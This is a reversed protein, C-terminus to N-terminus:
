PAEDFTTNGEFVMHQVNTRVGPRLSVNRFEIWTYPRTQFRFERIEDLPLDFGYTLSSLINGNSGRISSATIVGSDTIAIVRIAVSHYGRNFNHVVPLFTDGDKEYPVGFAIAGDARSHTKEKDQSTHTALTDWEAATVGFRVLATTKDQSQNVTYVRLDSVRNGDKGIPSGTSTAQTGGPVDWKYSTDSPGTLRMVFEYDNYGEHHKLRSGMTKYPAEEMLTGDPHWWQRGESPHECVGLLEATVGNRLTVTFGSMGVSPKPPKASLNLLKSEQVLSRLRDSTPAALLIVNMNRAKGKLEVTQGQKLAAEIEPWPKPLLDEYEPPIRDPSDLSFLLVVIDGPKKHHIEDVFIEDYFKKNHNRGTSNLVVDKVRVLIEPFMNINAPSMIFINPKSGSEYIQAKPHTEKIEVAPYEHPTIRVYNEGSNAEFFHIVDDQMEKKIAHTVGNYTVLQAHVKQRSYIKRSLEWRDPMMKEALAKKIIDAEDERWADRSPLTDNRDLSGMYIYHAVKSFAEENFPRGIYKEIGAIGIPFPLEYGNWQKVPLTPLGNVGGAAVAKVMEPHLFSYRNCFKASASFGHMFVKENIKFGNTRLLEQAYKIMATLQLDIRKLKGETIELTDIDLAHTYAWWNTRPRPFTPVLLPVGLQRAMQAAYSGEALRFARVRHFEPDDSTTGSNNPEVLMYVPKDKDIRRPVFLYFPFNFGRAEQTEIQLIDDGALSVKQIAGVKEVGESESVLMTVNQSVKNNTEDSEDVKNDPDVIVSITNEGPELRLGPNYEAWTKGPMIPGAAQASLLRGGKDPDGAHFNVRFQPIPVSGKNRLVIMAEFLRDALKTVKFNENDVAIDVASNEISQKQARAMPLLTAGLILVTMLGLIGLKVNKPIPRNAMHRIREELAKKSEVVGILRLSLSTKLFATEAIDILTNSYDKAGSGLTVLVMEDVAQERIRRVVINALWVLPNYFYVIQLITQASNIWLDGRRIHCLEHTLVAKLKDQPLKEILAKRILIVPTFLGCVAPSSVSNSVRVEIPRRVGVHKRCLNLMESFSSEAPESDAILRRVYLMRQILLASFVAVGALWVVFVVAQWTLSNLPSLATTTSGTPEHSTQSLQVQPAEARLPSDGLPPPGAPADAIARSTHQLVLPAAPLIENRWYGIGTPLSLSPPLVLKVFVLMWIWYRLTARVRKRILVDVILLLVILVGSQIFVNGAHNCFAGGMGNLATIIDNIRNSM